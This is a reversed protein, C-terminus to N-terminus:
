PDGTIAAEATASETASVTFPGPLIRTQVTLTVTVTIEDGAVSIVGSNGTSLLYANAEARALGEDLTPVGTARFSALDVQQAGVRAANDALDRAEALGNLKRGGDVALGAAFILGIALVAIFTSVAGREDLVRDRATTRPTHNSPAITM